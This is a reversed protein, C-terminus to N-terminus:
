EWTSTVQEAIEDSGIAAFTKITAWLLALGFVTMCVLEFMYFPFLPILLVSTTTMTKLSIGVQVYAAYALFFCITTSCVQMVGFAIFKGVRGFANILMTVNIHGQHYETYTYGAFVMCMLARETLEYAGSVNSHFVKRAIVDIAILIIVGVLFAASAVGFIDCLRKMVKDIKKIM